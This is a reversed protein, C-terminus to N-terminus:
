PTFVIREASARTWAETVNSLPVPEAEIQLKGPVIANLVGSISRLLGANSVSGLGSGLLELGTSRLVEASFNITKGAISGIQVYRIRPEGSGSGHGSMAELLREAPPGWLYDLIVNVANDKIASRLTQTLAEAPQDLAIAIDAGLAALPEISAANRGTAIVTKAGLHKAIQIALRGSTGTAGHILVTEGAVFHAREVLAAWSAMGPNAAAAATVDDVDDPVPICQAATVVTREAMAGFPPAPFAFYVRQGASKSNGLRGIGDAGPVFPFVSGSSYHRGAAQGKVLQSLGAATVTILNQGSAPTPEPFDAYRPPNSFNDVVAAKMLPM